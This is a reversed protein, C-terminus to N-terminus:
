ADGGRVLTIPDNDSSTEQNQIWREIAIGGNLSAALLTLIRQVHEADLRHLIDYFKAGGGGNWLDWAIRFLIDEGGSFARKRPKNFLECCAATPGDITWLYDMRIPRLLCLIARCIQRDNQFM